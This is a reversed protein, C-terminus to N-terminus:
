CATNVDAPIFQVVALVDDVGGGSMTAQSGEPSMNHWKLGHEKVPPTVKLKQYKIKNEQTPVLNLHQTLKRQQQPDQLPAAQQHQHQQPAPSINFPALAPPAHLPPPSSHPSLAPRTPSDATPTSVSTNSEDAGDSLLSSYQTTTPQQKPQTSEIGFSESHMNAVHQQQQESVEQHRYHESGEHIFPRSQQPPPQQHTQPQPSGYASYWQATNNPNQQPPPPMHQQQPRPQTQPQPQQYYYHPQQYQTPYRQMYAYSQAAQMRMMQQQRAM